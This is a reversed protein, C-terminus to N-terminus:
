RDLVYIYRYISQIYIYIYLTLNTIYMVGGVGVVCVIYFESTLLDISSHLIDHFIICICLHMLRLLKYNVDIRIPSLSTRLLIEIRSSVVPPIENKSSPNSFDSKEIQFKVCPSTCDVPPNLHRDLPIIFRSSLYRFGELPIYIM